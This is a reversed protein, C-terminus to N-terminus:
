FIAFRRLESAHPELWTAGLVKRLSELMEGPRASESWLRVLRQPYSTESM